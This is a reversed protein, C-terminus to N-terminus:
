SILRLAQMLIPVVGGRGARHVNVILKMNLNRLTDMSNNFYTIQETGTITNNPPALTVAINYRGHNQWYKKGPKGNLQRTGKAYAAQVEPPLPLTQASAQAIIVCACASFFISKLM